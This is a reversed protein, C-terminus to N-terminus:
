SKSAYGLIVIGCILLFVFFGTRILDKELAFIPIGGIGLISLAAGFITMITRSASM